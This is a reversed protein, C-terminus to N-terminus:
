QKPALPFSAYVTFLDSVSSKDTQYLVDPAM